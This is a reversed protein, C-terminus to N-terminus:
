RSAAAAQQLFPNTARERGITTFPGHGNLVTVDDGLPLLKDRISNLLQELSGGPLDTRGTSGCTLMLDSGHASAGAPVLSITQAKRDRRKRVLRRLAPIKLTSAHGRARRPWGCMFRRSNM